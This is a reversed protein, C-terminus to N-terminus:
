SGDVVYVTIIILVSGDRNFRCVVDVESKGVDGGVVYRPGIQGEAM